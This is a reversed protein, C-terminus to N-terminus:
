GNIIKRGAAVFAIIEFRWAVNTTFQGGGVVEEWRRDPGLVSFRANVAKAQVKPRAALTAGTRGGFAAKARAM